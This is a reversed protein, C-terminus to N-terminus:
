RNPKIEKAHFSPEQKLQQLDDDEDQKAM